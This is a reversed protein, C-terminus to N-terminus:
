PKFALIPMSSVKAVMGFLVSGPPAQTHAQSDNRQHPEVCSVLSEGDLGMGGLVLTTLKSFATIDETITGGLPNSLLDLVELTPALPALLRLTEPLPPGTRM